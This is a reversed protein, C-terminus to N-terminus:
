RLAAALFTRTREDADRAAAAIGAATGGLAMWYKALPHYARYAGTTPIGPKGISHGASPYCQFQDLPNHGALRDMSIKSMRCAPWLKDDEGAILLVPGKTKEVRITAADLVEPTAEDLASIFPPTSDYLLKGDIPDRFGKPPKSGNPMMPLSKGEYTWAGADLSGASGWVVGSPVNAVVATVRPFTAGLLLALEGGRSGGMVALKTADAEPRGDLWKMAREFYELPVDTLEAPLGEAAFYAVGLVAYGLSAYYMATFEGSSLGGESGGFALITPHKKGDKPAYYAGLLGDTKVSVNELGDRKVFRELTGRAVRVEDVLVDVRLGNGAIAEEPPAADKTMSWVPGDPDITTYSGSKPADRATDVEGAANAEFTNSSSWAGDRFMGTANLTVMARPAVGTVRMVIVDGWFAKTATTLETASRTPKTLFALAPTPAPGTDPTPQAPTSATNSGCACLLAALIFARM